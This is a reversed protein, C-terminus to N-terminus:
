TQREGVAEIVCALARGALLQKDLRQARSRLRYKRLCVEVDEGQERRRAQVPVIEGSGLAMCGLGFREDGLTAEVLLLEHREHVDSASPEELPPSVGGAGRCRKTARDLQGPAAAPPGLERVREEKERPQLAPLAAVEGGAREDALGPVHERRAGVGTPQAVQEGLGLAAEM